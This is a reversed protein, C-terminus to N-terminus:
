IKKDSTRRRLDEIAEAIAARNKDPLTSLSPSLDLRWSGQPLSEYVFQGKHFAGNSNTGDYEPPQLSRVGPVGLLIAISALRCIDAVDELSYGPYAPNGPYLYSREIYRRLQACIEEATFQGASVSDRLDQSELDWVLILCIVEKDAGTVWTPLAFAGRPLNTQALQAGEFGGAEFDYSVERTVERAPVVPEKTEHNILRDRLSDKDFCDSYDVSLDRLKAQLEPVTLLTISEKSNSGSAWRRLMLGPPACGRRALLTVSEKGNTGSAWRRLMLGPPACGRKALLRLM